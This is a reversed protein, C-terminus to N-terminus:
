WKTIHDTDGIKKFYKYIPQTGDDEFHSKRQFYSSDLAQLKKIKDQEAKLETKTTLTAM